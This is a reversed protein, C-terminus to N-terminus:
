GDVAGANETMASIEQAKGAIQVATLSVTM